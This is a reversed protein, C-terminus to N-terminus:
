SMQDAYYLALYRGLDPDGGAAIWACCGKTWVLSRCLTQDQTRSERRSETEDLRLWHWGDPPLALWEPCMGAYAARLILGAVYVRTSPAWHDAAFQRREWWPHARLEEIQRWSHQLVYLPVPDTRQEFAAMAVQEFEDENWIEHSFEGLCWLYCERSVVITEPLTMGM